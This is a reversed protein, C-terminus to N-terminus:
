WISLKVHLKLCHVNGCKPTDLNFEEGGSGCAVFHPHFESPFLKPKMM